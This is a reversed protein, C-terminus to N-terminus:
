CDLQHSKMTTKKVKQQKKFFEDRKKSGIEEQESPKGGLKNFDFEVQETKDFVLNKEPEKSGKEILKEELLAKRRLQRKNLKEEKSDSLIKM